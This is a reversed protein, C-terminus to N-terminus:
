RTVRRRFIWVHDNSPGEDYAYGDVAFEKLGAAGVLRNVIAFRAMLGRARKAYFSVVRFRGGSWDEFVPQVVPVCLQKPWVAKFYEESALNILVAAGAERLSGNLAETIRGGWFAYLDRGRPNLLRTGMELRYPQMLDLPRLLGYLGSLIRLHIQAFSLDAPSLASAGLGDYVDGNFALVAQKANQPTFPRVWEAYRTANLVALQDSIKMLSGIQAPSLQRLVDILLQSQELFLPQAHEALTPPTRYDLSKAPSLVLIM